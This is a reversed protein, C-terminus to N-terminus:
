LSIIETMVNFQRFIAVSLWVFCYPMLFIIATRVWGFRHVRRMAWPIYVSQIVAGFLFFFYAPEDVLLDGLFPLRSLLDEMLPVSVIAAAILALFSAVVYVTAFIQLSVSLTELFSGRGRLAWCLLHVLSGYLLWSCIVIVAQAFIEPAPPRDPLLSNLAIGLVTSFAAYALLSPSLWLERESRASAIRKQENGESVPALSFRATPSALTLLTVRSWGVLHEAMIKLIKEPDM